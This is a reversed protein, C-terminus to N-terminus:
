EKVKRYEVVCRCNPHSPPYDYAKNTEPDIFQKDLPVGKEFYENHLRRCIDSTKDDMVAAYAKNGDLGSEKYTQLKGENIFRTTETRAIRKAQNMSSGEFREKIKATLQSRSEKNNISEQVDQMIDHQLEKTVGKIGFWQKGNIMYGNLQQNEFVSLQKNFAETWGVQIDIEDEASEQGQIMSKKITKRLKLAFTRSNVINFLTRMFQGFTKNMDIQSLGSIVTTQMKEFVKTMLDEYDDAKEIVDQGADIITKIATQCYEKEFDKLAEEKNFGYRKSFEIIQDKNIETTHEEENFFKFLYQSETSDYFLKVTDDIMSAERHLEMFKKFDLIM